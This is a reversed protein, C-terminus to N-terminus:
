RAGPSVSYGFPSFCSEVQGVDGLIGNLADLIIKSSVTREVYVMSYRSDLNASDRFSGFQAEMQAEDGLLVM